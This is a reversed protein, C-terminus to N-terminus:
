MKYTWGCIRTEIYKDVYFIHISNNTFSKTTPTVKFVLLMHGCIQENCVVTFSPFTKLYQKFFVALIFTKPNTAAAVAAAAAAAAYSVILILFCKLRSLLTNLSAHANLCVSLRM